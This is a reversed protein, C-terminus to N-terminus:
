DHLKYELEDNQNKFCPKLYLAVKYKGMQCPKCAAGVFCPWSDDESMPKGISVTYLNESETTSLFSEM